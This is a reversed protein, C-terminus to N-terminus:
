HGRRHIDRMESHGSDIMIFGQRSLRVALESKENFKQGKYGGNVHHDMKNMM